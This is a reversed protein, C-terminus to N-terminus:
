EYRLAIMPDVKTARLAPIYSAFLAIAALVVPVTLFIVTDTASVGFLLEEMVRTLAFAGALGAALGAILLVSAQGVVLKLIDRRQAGLAVRIGIERTREAVTYSMVGYVGIAALALAIAGFAMLLVTSFRRRAVSRDVYSELNAVSYVPLDKDIAKIEERIAGTLGVPDIASRVVMTMAGTPQQAYPVYIEPKVEADLGFHKVDGVVGVIERWAPEGEGLAVQLSLRKGVPDEGAFHRRAMEENIVAVPSSQKRDEITFGRGRSIPIQMVTFYDSSALRFQAPPLESPTRPPWGEATFGLYFTTNSLPSFSISGASEVGPLEKIRDLAEDYFATIRDDGSYRAAPLSVKFTLVGEPNFGPDVQQLRYFSKILLGAGVLLVLALAVESVVLAKRLRGRASAASSSRAGEKLSQNLDLKSAQLAPALGFTLGTLMTVCITFLLANGDIRIEDLRPINDPGAAVLLDIGWLALLLGVAASATALLLSETLLQRILRARSAGLAARIAMEKERLSARVLLLNAVNACAILLVFGVAGLLILLAPRVAGVLQEQLGVVAVPNEKNQEPYQAALRGVITSIETQAEERAVNPKLRGIVGYMQAGREQLSQGDLSVSAWVDTKGLLPFEFGEPLVGIVAYSRGDLTVVQELIRPDGGMRRQWLEYSLVVTNPSAPKEEDATFTRGLLPQVRLTPFFDSSVRAGAVREAEGGGTLVVGRSRYAAMREFTRNQDRWDAFNPYSNYGPGQGKDQFVPGISMIRDAEDYPMQRILVSNVVSFIATNAGIGLALTIVAVAAFGPKAILARISYRVDQILSEM